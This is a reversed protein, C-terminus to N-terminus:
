PMQDLYAVRRPRRARPPRAPADRLSVTGGRSVLTAHLVENAIEDLAAVYAAWQSSPPITSELNSDPTTSELNSGAQPSGFLMNHLLKVRNRISRRRPRNPPAEASASAQQPETGLEALAAPDSHRRPATRRSPSRPQLHLHRREPQHYPSRPSLHSSAPPPQQFFGSFMDRAIASERAGSHSNASQVWADVDIFTGESISSGSAELAAQLIDHEHDRVVTPSEDSARPSSAESSGADPVFPWRASPAQRARTVLRRFAPLRCMPCRSTSLVCSKACTSCFKHQCAAIAEPEDTLSLCIPCFAIRCRQLFGRAAAQIRRAAQQTATEAETAKSAHKPPLVQTWRAVRAEGRDGPAPLLWRRDGGEVDALFEM